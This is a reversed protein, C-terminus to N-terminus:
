LWTGSLSVVKLNRRSKRREGQKSDSKKKKGETELKKELKKGYRYAHKQLLSFSLKDLL